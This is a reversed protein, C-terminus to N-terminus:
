QGGNPSNTKMLDSALLGAVQDLSDVVHNAPVDPALIKGTKRTIRLAKWGAQIAGWYDNTADDGIMLIEAPEINLSQAIKSFFTPDPKRAQLQASWFVNECSDLPKHARCIRTLREDFNSAIGVTLGQARLRQWCSEVDEYVHWNTPDAFHDWLQCFLPEPAAVDPFVEAVIQRWTERERDEDTPAAPTRSKRFAASFRQSVQKRTQKSGHRQGAALYADSVAPAPTMITGVADFLVARVNRLNETM